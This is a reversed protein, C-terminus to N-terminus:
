ESDKVAVSALFDSEVDLSMEDLFQLLVIVECLCVVFLGEDIDEEKDIFINHGISALFFESFNGM